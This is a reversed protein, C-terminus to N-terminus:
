PSSAKGFDVLGLNSQSQMVRIAHQNARSEFGLFVGSVFGNGKELNKAPSMWIKRETPIRRETMPFRCMMPWTMKTRRLGERFGRFGEEECLVRSQGASEIGRLQLIECHAGLKKHLPM